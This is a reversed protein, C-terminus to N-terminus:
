THNKKATQAARLTVKSMYGIHCGATYANFLMILAGLALLTRPHQYLCYFIALGVVLSGALGRRLLAIIARRDLEIFIDPYEKRYVLLDSAEQLQKEEKEEKSNTSFRKKILGYADPVSYVAAIVFHGSVYCLAIVIIAIAWKPPYAGAISFVDEQLHVHGSYIGILLFVGGSLAYGFVDRLLIFSRILYALLDTWSTGEAM